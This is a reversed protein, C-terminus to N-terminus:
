RNIRNFEKRNNKYLSQFLPYLRDYVGRTGPSPMIRGGKELM